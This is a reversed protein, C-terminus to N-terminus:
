RVTEATLPANRLSAESVVKKGRQETCNLSRLLQSTCSQQRVNERVRCAREDHEVIDLERGVVLHASARATSLSKQEGDGWSSASSFSVRPGGSM